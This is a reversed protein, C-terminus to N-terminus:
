RKVFLQGFNHKIKYRQNRYGRKLYDRQLIM